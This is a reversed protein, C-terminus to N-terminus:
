YSFKRLYLWNPCKQGDRIMWISTSHELYLQNLHKQFLTACQDNFEIINVEPVKCSDVMLMTKIIKLLLNETAINLHNIIMETPITLVTYYNFPVEAVQRHYWTNCPTHTGSLLDADKIKGLYWSPVYINLFSYCNAHKALALSTQQYNTMKQGHRWSLMDGKVYELIFKYCSTEAECWRIKANNFKYQNLYTMSWHNTFIIFIHSCLLYDFKSIVRKIPFAEHKTPSWHQETPSFTHSAVPIIKKMWKETEQM